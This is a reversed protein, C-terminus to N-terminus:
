IYYLSLFIGLIHIFGGVVARNWEILMDYGDEKRPGGVAAVMSPSYAWDNSGKM